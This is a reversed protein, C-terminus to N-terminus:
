TQLLQRAQALAAVAAGVHLHIVPVPQDESVASAAIQCHQVVERLHALLMSQQERQLRHLIEAGGERGVSTDLVPPEPGDAATLAPAAPATALAAELQHLSREALDMGQRIASESSDADLVLRVALAARGGASTFLNALGDATEAPLSAFWSRWHPETNREAMSLM